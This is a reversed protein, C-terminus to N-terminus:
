LEKFLRVNEIAIVAQDAFTTVLEIQRDTFPRVESGRILIVGILSGERLMPVGLTARGKGLTLAEPFEYEPDARSTPYTFWEASLPSGDQRLREVLGFRILRFSIGLNKHCM